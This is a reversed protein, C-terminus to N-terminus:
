CFQKGDSFFQNVDLPNDNTFLTHALSIRGPGAIVAFLLVYLLM